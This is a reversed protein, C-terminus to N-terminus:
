GCRALYRSYLVFADSPKVMALDRFGISPSKISRQSLNPKDILKYTSVLLDKYTSTYRGFRKRSRGENARIQVLVNEVLPQVDGLNFSQRIIIRENREEASGM